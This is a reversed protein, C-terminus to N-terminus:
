FLPPCPQNNEGGEEEEEEEKKKKAERGAGRGGRGVLFFGKEDLPPIWFGSM